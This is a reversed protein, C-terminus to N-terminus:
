RAPCPRLGHCCAVEVMESTILGHSGVIAALEDYLDTFQEPRDIAEVVIPLDDALAEIADTHIPGGATFGARGRYATAGAINADHLLTIVARWAPQGCHRASEPIFIRLLTHREALPM